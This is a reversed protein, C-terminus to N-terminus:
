SISRSRPVPPMPSVETQRLQPFPLAAVRLQSGRGREPLEGGLAADDSGGTAQSGSLRRSNYGPSRGEDTSNM